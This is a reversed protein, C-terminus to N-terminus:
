RKANGRKCMSCAMHGKRVSAAINGKSRRVLHGHSICRWSYVAQVGVYKRDILRLGNEAGWRRLEGIDLKRNGACSPCWAGRRIRWPEAFWTPHDAVACKWEHRESGLYRQSVLNGGRDTAVTRLEAIEAPFLEAKPLRPVKELRAAALAAAVGALLNHPPFPRKVAMVEVLTVGHARCAKRKLADTARISAQEEHHPGQYEFALALKACYGDLELKRGTKAALWAPKSKPFKEGFTAEFIGRVIREGKPSCYPCWSGSHILSNADVEWEHANACAVRLRTGLGQWNRDGVIRVIHGGRETIQAEV